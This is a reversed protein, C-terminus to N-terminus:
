GSVASIVPDEFLDNSIPDVFQAPHTTVIESVGSESLWEGHDKGRAATYEALRVKM